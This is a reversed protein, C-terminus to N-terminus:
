FRGRGSILLVLYTVLTLCAVAVVCDRPSLYDGRNVLGEFLRLLEHM